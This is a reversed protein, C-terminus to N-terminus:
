LNKLFEIDEDDLKDLASMYIERKEHADANKFDNFANAMESKRSSSRTKNNPIKSNRVVDIIQQSNEDNIRDNYDNEASSTRKHHKRKDRRMKGYDYPDSSLIDSISSGDNNDADDYYDDSTTDSQKQDKSNKKSKSKGKNEVKEEPKDTTTKLDTLTLIRTPLLVEENLKKEFESLTYDYKIKFWKSRTQKKNEPTEATDTKVNIIKVEVFYGKFPGSSPKKGKYPGETPIDKEGTYFKFIIKYKVKSKKALFYKSFIDGKTGQAELDYKNVFDRILEDRAIKKKGGSSFLSVQTILDNYTSVFKSFQKNNNLM